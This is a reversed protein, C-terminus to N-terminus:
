DKHSPSNNTAKLRKTRNETHNKIKNLIKFVTAKDKDLILAVYERDRLNHRTLKEYCVSKILTTIELTCYEHVSFSCGNNQKLLRKSAATVIDQSRQLFNNENEL